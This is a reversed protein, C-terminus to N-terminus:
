GPARPELPAKVFPTKRCPKKERKRYFIYLGSFILCRGISLSIRRPRSVRIRLSLPNQATWDNPCCCQAMQLATNLRTHRPKPLVAVTASTKFPARGENALISVTPTEPTPRPTAESVVSSARGSCKLGEGLAQAADPAYQAPRLPQDPSCLFQCQCPQVSAELCVRYRRPCGIRSARNMSRLKSWIRPTRPYPQSNSFLVLFCKPPPPEISVARIVRLAAYM